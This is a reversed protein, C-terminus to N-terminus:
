VAESLLEELLMEMDHKWNEYYLGTGPGYFGTHVKRVSGDRGIILSTPFSMIHNLASFVETATSKSRNGGFYVPYPLDLDSQLEEIIHRAGKPGAADEFTIPVVELGREHLRKYFEVYDRSEDICNPCWSGLAQVIVVKNELQLDSLSILEGGLSYMPTSWVKSSDEVFTLEDPNRLEFSNSAIATWPEAWHSGSRFMGNSLATGDWDATFLFAHSGDFCSLAFTGGCVNGELFRYDGTETLFTGTVRNDSVSAKFLGIAAYEDEDNGPSFHVEYKASLGEIPGTDKTDCFRYEPGYKAEFPLSYDKGRGYNRWEGSYLKGDNSIVGSFESDFLPMRIYLSDGSHTYEYATIVEDANLFDVKLGGEQRVNLTIPLGAEGLDLVM